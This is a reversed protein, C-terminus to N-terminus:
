GRFLSAGVESRGVSVLGGALAAAAVWRLVPRAASKKLLIQWLRVYSSWYGPQPRRGSNRGGWVPRGPPNREDSSRSGIPVGSGDRSADGLASNDGIRGNRLRLMSPKSGAVASKVRNPLPALNSLIPRIGNLEEAQAALSRAAPALEAGRPLDWRSSVPM